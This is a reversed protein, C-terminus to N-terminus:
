RCGLSAVREALERSDEGLSLRQLLAACERERGPGASQPERRVASAVNPRPPPAPRPRAAASPAAAPPAVPVPEPTAAPPAAISAAAEPAPGAVAAAPSGESAVSSAEPKPRQAPAPAPAPAGATRWALVAAVVVVVAGAAPLAQRRLRPAPSPAADAAPEVAAAPAGPRAPVPVKVAPRTLVRTPLDDDAAPAARAAAVPLRTAAQLGIQRRFEDISRTRQEPLVALARDIAVLFAQGYRGAASTALPVYADEIMRGVAPPPTRGTIAWYVTAALAYVDTWAGQKLGPSEAYQELPAFGPKLIATLDQTSEGIVRRAAGFDLLLPQGTDGLLIVNDPAIDRHYWNAAHIVALAETLPALLQLLWREDPPAGMERLTQKLTRGEYLPMVMYATGQAEWFRHVKVLAPHDFQALARAENIFSRLGTDFTERMRDSRAHVSGDSVRSALSAPLYEKLAVRRQLSHDWALYVISFGGEGLQSLLEFEGLRTGPPLADQHTPSAPPSPDAVDFPSLGGAPGMRPAPPM